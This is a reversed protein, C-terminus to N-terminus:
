NPPASETSLANSAIIACEHSEEARARIATPPISIARRAIELDDARDIIAKLGARMAAVQALEADREDRLAQIAQHIAENDQEVGLDEALDGIVRDLLDVDAKAKDRDATMAALERRAAVYATVVAGYSAADAGALLTAVVSAAAESIASLTALAAEAKNARNRHTELAKCAQEYAWLTPARETPSGPRLMESRRENEATLRAIEAAQAESHQRIIEAAGAPIRDLVHEPVDGPRGITLMRWKDMEHDPRDNEDTYPIVTVTLWTVSEPTDAETM